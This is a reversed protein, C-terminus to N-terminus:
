AHVDPGGWIRKLAYATVRIKEFLTMRSPVCSLSDDWIGTGYDHTEDNFPVDTMVFARRTM